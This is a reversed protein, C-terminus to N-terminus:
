KKSKIKEKAMEDCLERLTKGEKIAIIKLKDVLTSDINVNRRETEKKNNM